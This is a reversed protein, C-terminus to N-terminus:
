HHRTAGIKATGRYLDKAGAVAAAMARDLLTSNEHVVVDEVGNQRYSIAAHCDAAATALEGLARKYLREMAADPIPAKARANTVAAALKSCAQKMELFQRVDHTMLVDGLEASVVALARGGHGGDWAAVKAPHSPNLAANSDQGVAQSAPVALATGALKGAATSATPGPRGAVTVYTVASLGLLALVAYAVIRRGHHRRSWLVQRVSEFM